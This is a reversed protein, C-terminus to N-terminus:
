VNAKRETEPEAAIYGLAVVALFMALVESDGLNLEFFGEIMIAIVVALAGELTARRPGNHMWRTAGRGLDWLIMVLMTVLALMVPVGREAAYHV